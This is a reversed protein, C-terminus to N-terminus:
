RKPKRHKRDWREAEEVSILGDGDEDIAKFEEDTGLFERRSVDGDRNRDMKRFWLPGRASERGRPRDVMGRRAAVVRARFNPDDPPGQHFLVTYRRPIEKRSICGDRDKDLVDLLKVMNRIERVSLRGDRNVDILDFLGNGSDSVMMSVCSSRAAKQLADMADLYAVVEKLSLKGDGDRDMLHFFNRFLPLREVEKKDLYGKNDTDANKFQGILVARVRTNFRGRADAPGGVGTRLDIRLPGQELYLSGREGKKVARALPAPKGVLHRLQLAELDDRKGVRVTM